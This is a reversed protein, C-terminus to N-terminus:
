TQYLGREQLRRKEEDSVEVNSPTLLYVERAVREMQGGMGYCLGSAFDILRRSIERELNQLNVIVPQGAKFKDAVEQADNFATPTVRAVKAAPTPVIPRVVGGRPRAAAPAPAVPVPGSAAQPEERPLARVAGSPPEAAPPPAYTSPGPAVQEDGQYEDDYEDDPGLGLYLMARRWMTSM